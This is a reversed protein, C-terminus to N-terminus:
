KWTLNLGIYSFRYADFPFFSMSVKPGIYFLKFLRFDLTFSLNGGFMFGQREFYECHWDYEGTTPNYDLGYSLSQHEYSYRITPGLASSFRVKEQGLVLLGNASFELGNSIENRSWNPNNYEFFVHDILSGAMNLDLGVKKTLMYNAGLYLKQGWMDGNGTFVGGYSIYIRKGFRMSDLKTQSIAVFPFIFTGIFIACVLQVRAIDRFQPTSM